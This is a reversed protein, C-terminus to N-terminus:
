PELPIAVRGHGIRQRVANQAAFGPRRLRQGTPASTAIPTGPSPTANVVTAAFLRPPNERRLLRCLLEGHSFARWGAARKFPHPSFGAYPVDPPVWNPLPPRPFLPGILCTHPPSGGSTVGRRIPGMERGVGRPRGGHGAVFHALTGAITGAEQRVGRLLGWGSEPFGTPANQSAPQTM